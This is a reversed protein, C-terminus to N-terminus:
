LPTRLEHSMNALFESKLQATNKLDTALEKLEEHAKELGAETEKRETIDEIALLIIREKGSAGQIQRANLLMTRRGITSFNHEVEYNDFSVKKPLITELLERLKPIDWQKNGLNYILQGVTEEPTVKFFEYFSRSVKVVRLNQDLAILPERVTDIISEAYERSEDKSINDVELLRYRTERIILYAFSLIFLLMLLCTIIIVIFMHRISSQFKVDLQAVADKQMQILNGMKARISDMLRKGHASGIFAQAATIGQNRHLEIVHSMEALKAKALPIIAEIHQHATDNLTFQHLEKLHVYVNNVTRSYPELFADDSTLLYGRQGTEADRLESLLENAKNLTILTHRRTEATQEIQRYARFSVLGWLALMLAAGTILAVMKNTKKM